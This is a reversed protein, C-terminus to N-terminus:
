PNKIGLRQLAEGYLPVMRIMNPTRELTFTSRPNRPIGCPYERSCVIYYNKDQLAYEMLIEWGRLSMDADDLVIIAGEYKKYFVKVDNPDGTIKTPQTRQLTPTQGILTAQKALLTKGSGSDGIIVNFKSNVILSLTMRPANFTLDM